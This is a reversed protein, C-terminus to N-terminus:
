IENDKYFNRVVERLKDYLFAPMDFDCEFDPYKGETFRFTHEM